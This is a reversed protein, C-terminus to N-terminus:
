QVNKIIKSAFVFVLLNTLLVATTVQESDARSARQFHHQQQQKLMMCILAIILLLFIQFRELFGRRHPRINKDLLMPILTYTNKMVLLELRKAIFYM